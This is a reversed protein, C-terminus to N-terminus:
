LNISCQVVSSLLGNQSNRCDKLLNFFFFISVLKLLQLSRGSKSSGVIYLCLVLSGPLGNIIGQLHSKISHEWDAIESLSIELWLFVIYYTFFFLITLSLIIYYFLFYPSFYLFTAGLLITISCSSKSYSFSICLILM